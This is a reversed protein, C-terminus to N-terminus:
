PEPYPPSSPSMQPRSARAAALCHSPDRHCPRKRPTGLPRSGGHADQPPATLHSLRGPSRSCTSRPSHLGSQAHPAVRTRASASTRLATPRAAWRPRPATTRAGSRRAARRARRRSARRPTAARSSPRSTTAPCSRRRLCTRSESPRRPPPPARGPEPPRAGAAGNRPGMGCRGGGPGKAGGGGGGAGGGEAPRAAKSDALLRVYGAPVAPERRRLEPRVVRRHLSGRALGDQVDVPRRGAPAGLAADKEGGGDGKRELLRVHHAPLQAYRRRLERPVLWRHCWRRRRGLVGAPGDGAQDGPRPVHERQGGQHRPM